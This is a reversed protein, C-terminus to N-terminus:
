PQLTQPYELPSMWSALDMSRSSLLSNQSLSITTPIM